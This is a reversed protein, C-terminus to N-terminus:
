PGAVAMVNRADCAVGHADDLLESPTLTTVDVGSRVRRVAFTFREGTTGLKAGARLEDGVRVAVSELGAHVLLYARDKTGHRTVVTKGRLEGAFVVRVMGEQGEVSVLRVETGSAQPLTLEARSEDASAVGVLWAVPWRYRAYDAERDPQRPIVEGTAEPPKEKPQGLAGAGPPPVPICVEGDPLTGPPCQSGLGVSASPAADPARPGLAPRSLAAAAALVSLATAVLAARLLPQM